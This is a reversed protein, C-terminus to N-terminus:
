ADGFAATLMQRDSDQAQAARAELQAVAGRVGTAFDDAAVAARHDADDAGPVWVAVMVPIGPLRQRLRRLLFRLNPQVGSFGIGCVVVVMASRLDLQPLRDRSAAEHPLVTSGFGRRAAIQAIMTAAADDFPGRGAICAVAGPAAWETAVKGATADKGAPADAARHLAVPAAVPGPVSQAPAPVTDVHDALDALLAASARRVGALRAATLVGRDADGAALRLAPLAIEDYYAALTQGTLHQEAQDLLEDADAALLRQYFSEVPSLAPRDGLLVDLFELRDFHRGLVVLCLTLPTSLVLGIPGWLWTWFVAAIVVAAPSLGTSRGYVMPEVVYGMVPEAILFLAATEIALTWDAGVAGALLLPPMASLFAGIYPLFRLLAALVGWLLPLPVGILALGVAVVIGFVANIALQSLFYRGLRAAADDMATTTRHLDTSGLLRIMRDRLDERQLLIFIAVIVVILTTELPGVVPGLVARALGLPTAPAAQIEVQMPRAATGVVARRPVPASQGGSARDFQRGIKDILKPLTGIASARVGAVKAEVSAAYRPVDGTLSAIQTGILAALLGALGLAFLVTAVVALVRPLHLRRLLAVVPALVFSLLIALMIPVLVERAFYLAAIVVVGVALGLLGSLGPVEAATVQAVPPGTDETPTDSNTVPM